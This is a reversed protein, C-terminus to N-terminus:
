VPGLRCESRRGHAGNEEARAAGGWALTLATLQGVARQRLETSEAGTPLGFCASRRERGRGQRKHRGAAREPEAPRWAQALGVRCLIGRGRV